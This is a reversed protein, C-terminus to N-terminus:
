LKNTMHDPECAHPPDPEVPEIRISDKVRCPTPCSLGLRTAGRDHIWSVRSIPPIGDDLHRGAIRSTADSEGTRRDSTPCAEDWGDECIKSTLM